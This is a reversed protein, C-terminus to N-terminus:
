HSSRLPIEQRSSEAQVSGLGVMEDHAVAQTLFLKVDSVSSLVKREEEVSAVHLTKGTSDEVPVSKGELQAHLVYSGGEISILDLERVKKDKAHKTLDQINLTM